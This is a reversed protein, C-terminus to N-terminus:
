KMKAVGCGNTSMQLKTNHCGRRTGMLGNFPMLGSTVLSATRHQSLMGVAGGRSGGRDAKEAVDTYM